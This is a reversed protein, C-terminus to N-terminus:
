PKNMSVLSIPQQGVLILDPAAQREISKIAHLHNNCQCDRRKAKRQSVFNERVNDFLSVKPLSRSYVLAIVLM